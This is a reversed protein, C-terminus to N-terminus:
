AQKRLQAIESEIAKLRAKEDGSPLRAYAKRILAEARSLGDDSAKKFSMDGTEIYRQLSKKSDALVSEISETESSGESGSIGALSVLVLAMLGLNLATQYDKSFPDYAKEFDIKELAERFDALAIEKRADSGVSEM